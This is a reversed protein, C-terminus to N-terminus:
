VKSKAELVWSSLPKSKGLINQKNNRGMLVQNLDILQNMKRINTGITLTKQKESVNVHKM